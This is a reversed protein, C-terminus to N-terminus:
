EETWPNYTGPKGFATDLANYADTFTATQTAEAWVKIDIRAYGDKDVPLVVNNGKDDTYSYYTVGDIEVVDVDVSKDLYVKDMAYTKTEEGPKLATRYTM